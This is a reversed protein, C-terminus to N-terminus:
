WFSEQVDASCALASIISIDPVSLMEVKEEWKYLYQRTGGYTAQATAQVIEMQAAPWQLLSEM